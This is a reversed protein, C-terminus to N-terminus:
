KRFNLLLSKIIQDQEPTLHFLQSTFFSIVLMIFSNLIGICGYFALSTQFLRNVYEKDDKSLWASFFRVNTNNFGMDMLRTYVNISMALGILGYEAKGFYSILIPVAIFGYIGNIVNYVMSWAVGNAVRKASGM